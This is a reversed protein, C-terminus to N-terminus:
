DRFRLIFTSVTVYLGLTVGAAGFGAVIAGAVRDSSELTIWAGIVGVLASGVVGLLVWMAMLAPSIRRMEPGAPENPTQGSLVKDTSSIAKDSVDSV